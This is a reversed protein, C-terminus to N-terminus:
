KNYVKWSTLPMDNIYIATKKGEKESNKLLRKCAVVQAWEGFADFSKVIWWAGDRFFKQGVTINETPQM